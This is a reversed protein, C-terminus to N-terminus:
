AAHHISISDLEGELNVSGPVDLNKREDIHLTPPPFDVQLLTPVSM